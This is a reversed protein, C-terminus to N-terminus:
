SASTFCPHVMSGESLKLRYAASGIKQLMKFLGSDAPTLWNKWKKPSDHVVCRLYMELCQNVRESQGDIQPHYATTRLLCTGFLSFLEKWFVSTFIRDRDSVITKPFGHLKIVQHLVARVVTQATFPHKLPIFHAYKTYRDVV